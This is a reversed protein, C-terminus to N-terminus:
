MGLRLGQAALRERAQSVRRCPGLSAASLVIALFAVVPALLAFLSFLRGSVSFLLWGTSALFLLGSAVLGVVASGARARMLRLGAVASALGLLTVVLLIATAATNLTFGTFTQLSVLLVLAGAGLVAGGGARVVAPPQAAKIDTESSPPQDM